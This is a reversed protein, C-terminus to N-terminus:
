GTTVPFGQSNLWAADKMQASTAQIVSNGSITTEGIKSVNLVATTADGWYGISQFNQITMDCICLEGAFNVAQQSGISRIDGYLASSELIFMGVDNPTTGELNIVTSTLKAPNAGIQSNSLYLSISSRDTELGYSDCNWFMSDYLEGGIGVNFLSINNYGRIHFVTASTIYMSSFTLNKIMVSHGADHKFAEESAKRLNKICANNGDIEKCRLLIRPADEPYQDNMDWQASAPLRVYADTTEAATKLEAYNAPVYPSSQTGSGTM